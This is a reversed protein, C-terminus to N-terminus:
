GQTVPTLHAHDNVMWIGVPGGNTLGTPTLTVRVFRRSGVYGFTVEDADTQPSAVIGATPTLGDIDDADANAYAGASGTGDDDAHEVLVAIGATGVPSGGMEDIDGFDVMFMASDFGQLDVDGTNLAGGGQTIDQMQLVRSIRISDHIGRTAM